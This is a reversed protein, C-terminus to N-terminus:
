LGGVRGTLVDATIDRADVLQVPPVYPKYTIQCNNPPQKAPHKTPLGASRGGGGVGGRGGCDEARAGLHRGGLRYFWLSYAIPWVISM